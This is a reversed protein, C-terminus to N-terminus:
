ACKGPSNIFLKIDKSADQNDLLLLQSVLADAGFDEVEGGLFVIRQRLLLGFPDGAMDATRPALIPQGNAQIWPRDAGKPSQTWSAATTLRRRPCAAARGCPVSSSGRAVSVASSAAVSALAPMQLMHLLVSPSLPANSSPKPPSSQLARQTPAAQQKGAPARTPVKAATRDLGMRCHYALLHHSIRVFLLIRGAASRSPRWWATSCSGAKKARAPAVGQPRYM